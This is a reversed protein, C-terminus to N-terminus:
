GFHNMWLIKACISFAAPIFMWEGAKFPAEEDSDVLIGSGCLIKDGEESAPHNRM